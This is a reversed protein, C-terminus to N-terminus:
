EIDNTATRYSLFGQKQHVSCYDTWGMMRTSVSVDTKGDM